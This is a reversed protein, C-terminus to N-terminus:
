NPKEDTSTSAMGYFLVAMLGFDAGGEVQAVPLFLSAAWIFIAVRVVLKLQVTM